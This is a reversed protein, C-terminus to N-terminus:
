KELVILSFTGPLMPPRRRPNDKTAAAPQPGFKSSVTYLRHTANDLEMTRAGEMTPVTQVVTYKDPADEHVVTISGEGNSSFVLQTGQDFRNADIGAGAAVTTVLKGTSADSVAIMKNRCGSFLRHHQEDIALGTPSECPAISWHRVVKMARPDIEAIEAKDELNAYVHGHGDSVGFEPKGGLQINAIRTGAVPDIVSSTGADGNMTFIHKTAPDFFIADADDDAAIRKIVHLKKMDFVIVSSDSGSTGFGLGKAYDFAVGHARKFGSIEGLVKGSAPDVVIVRDQRAVFLRHGATDLAVYDWGGEGGVVDTAAVHYNQAGASAAGLVLTLCLTSLARATSIHSRM